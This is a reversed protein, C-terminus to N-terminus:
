NLFGVISHLFNALLQAYLCNTHGNVVIGHSILRTEVYWRSFVDYDSINSSLVAFLFGHFPSATGKQVVKDMGYIASAKRIKQHTKQWKMIRQGAIYHFKSQAKVERDKAWGIIVGQLWGFPPGM